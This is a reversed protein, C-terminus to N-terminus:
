PSLMLPAFLTFANLSLAQSVGGVAPRAWSAVIGPLSEALELRSRAHSKDSRARYELVLAAILHDVVHLDQLPLVDRVRPVLLVKVRGNFDELLSPARGFGGVLGKDILLNEKSVRGYSELRLRSRILSRHLTFPPSSRASFAPDEVGVIVIVM